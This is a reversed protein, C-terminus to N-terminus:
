TFLKLIDDIKRTRKYREATKKISEVDMIQRLKEGIKKHKSLRYLLGLLQTIIPRTSYIAREVDIIYPTDDRVIVNKYLTSFEPIHIGMHEILWLDNILNIIIDRMRRPPLTRMAEEFTVGEIYQRILVSSNTTKMLGLPRPVHTGAKLMKELFEYEKAANIKFKAPYFKLNIKADTFILNLSRRGLEIKIRGGM